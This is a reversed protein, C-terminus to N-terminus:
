PTLSPLSPFSRVLLPVVTLLVLAPLTCCVLPFLLTVPLRRAAEERRRRRVDRADRGARELAPVLPVGHRQTAVLAESLARAPEGLTELEALAEVLRDGRGVRQGIRRLAVAVEGEGDLHDAVVALVSGVDLGSEVALRLLDILDPVQGVIAASRRRQAARARVRPGGVAVAAAVVGGVPGAFPLVTGGVVLAWGLRRDATPDPPRHARARLWRGSRGVVGDVTAVLRRSLGAAVPARGTDFRTLRTRLRARERSVALCWRAAVLTAAATASVAASWAPAPM